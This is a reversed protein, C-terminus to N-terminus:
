QVRHFGPVSGLRSMPVLTDSDQSYMIKEYLTNIGEIYIFGDKVKAPYTGYIGGSSTQGLNVILKDGDEYITLFLDGGYQNKNSWKGIFNENPNACGILVITTIFM